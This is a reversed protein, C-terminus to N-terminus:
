STKPCPNLERRNWWFTFPVGQADRKSKSSGSKPTSSARSSQERIRTCMQAYGDPLENGLPLRFINGYAFGTPIFPRRARGKQKKVFRVQSNFESSLKARSYPHVYEVRLDVLKSKLRLTHTYEGKAFGRRNGVQSNFM